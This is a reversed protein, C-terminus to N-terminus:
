MRSLGRILFLSSRAAGGLFLPVRLGLKCWANGCRKPPGWELPKRLSPEMGDSISGLATEPFEKTVSTELAWKAKHMCHSSVIHLVSPQIEDLFESLLNRQNTLHRALLLIRFLPSLETPAITKV